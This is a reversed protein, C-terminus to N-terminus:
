KRHGTFISPNTKECKNFPNASRRTQFLCVCGSTIRSAADVITYREGTDCRLFSNNSSCHEDIVEGRMLSIREADTWTPSSGCRELHIPMKLYSFFLKRKEVLFSTTPSRSIFIRELPSLDSCIWEMSSVIM